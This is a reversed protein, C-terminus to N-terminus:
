KDATPWAQVTHLHRSGCEGCLDILRREWHTREPDVLPSPPSPLAPCPQALNM